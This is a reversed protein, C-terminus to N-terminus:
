RIVGDAIRAEGVVNRSGGAASEYFRVVNTDSPVRVMFVHPGDQTAEVHELRGTKPDAFEGHVDGPKAVSGEAVVLGAEDLAEFGWRGHGADARLARPLPGALTRKNEVGFTGHDVRLLVAQHTSAVAHPEQPAGSRHEANPAADTGSPERTQGSCAVSLM